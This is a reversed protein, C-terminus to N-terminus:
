AVVFARLTNPAPLIHNQRYLRTQVFIFEGLAPEGLKEDFETKFNAGSTAPEVTSLVRYHTPSATEYPRFTRAASISVKFTLPFIIPVIDFNYGGALSISLNTTISETANDFFLPDTYQPFPAVAPFEPAGLSNTKMFLLYGSLNTTQGLRNPRPLQLATVNWAQRQIPTLAKWAIRLQSYINRMVLHQASLFKKQRPKARAVTGGKTHAFTTGGISGSIANVVAGLRLIAM